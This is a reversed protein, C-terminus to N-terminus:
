GMKHCHGEMLHIQGQKDSMGVIVKKVKVSYARQPKSSWRNHQCDIGWALEKGVCLVRSNSAEYVIIPSITGKPLMESTSYPEINYYPKDEM